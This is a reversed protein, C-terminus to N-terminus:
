LKEKLFILGYLITCLLSGINLVPYFVISSMRGAMTTNFLNACGFSIGCIIGSLVSKKDTAEENQTKYFLLFIVSILFAVVFGSMVFFDKQEPFGSNQQIKQITSMGGSSLMAAVLPIIYLNNNKSSVTESKSIGSIIVSIVVAFVGIIDCVTMEENYFLTGFLTPLIFGMGYIISCIGVKGKNLSAVFCWQASVLLLGFIVSYLVTLSSISNCDTKNFIMLVIMGSAFSIM